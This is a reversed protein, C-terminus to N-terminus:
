VPNVLASYSSEDEKSDQDEDSRSEDSPVHRFSLTKCELYKKCLRIVKLYALQSLFHVHHKAAAPDSGGILLPHCLDVSFDSQVAHDM